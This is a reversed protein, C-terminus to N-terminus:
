LSVPDNHYTKGLNLLNVNSSIASYVLSLHRILAVVVRTTFRV